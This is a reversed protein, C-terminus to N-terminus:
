SKRGSFRIEQHASCGPWKFEGQLKKAMQNIVTQNFEILCVEQVVGKVAVSHMLPVEGAAIAKILAMPDNVAGIWPM